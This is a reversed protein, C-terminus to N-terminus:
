ERHVVEVWESASEEGDGDESKTTTLSRKRGQLRRGDSQEIRCKVVHTPARHKASQALSWETTDLCHM